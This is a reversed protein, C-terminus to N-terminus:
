CQKEQESWAAYPHRALALNYYRPLHTVEEGLWDPREFVEDVATLEIEAVILGQNDGFFEDIEWVHPGIPLLHRIKDIAGNCALAMLAEADALPIAYEFEQRLAGLERSKINLNATEGMIRVRVSCNERGAVLSAADNLYAQAIRKQASALARWSENRLLFKREIEIAM